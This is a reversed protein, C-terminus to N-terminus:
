SIMPHNVERESKLPPQAHLGWHVMQMVSQQKILSSRHNIGSQWESNAGRTEVFDMSRSKWKIDLLWAPNLQMILLASSFCPTTIYSMIFSIIAALGVLLIRLTKLAMSPNMYLLNANSTNLSFSKEVVFVRFSYSNIHPLSYYYGKNYPGDLPGM